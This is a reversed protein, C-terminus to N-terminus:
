ERCLKRRIVTQGETWEMQM